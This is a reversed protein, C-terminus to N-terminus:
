DMGIVRLGTETLIVDVAQDHPMVPVDLLEDEHVIAVLLVRCGSRRLDEILRDYYGGGQGLRLGTRPDAALAPILMVASKDVLLESGVGVTPGDPSPLRDLRSVLHEPTASVWELRESGLPRPLLVQQGESIANGLLTRPDPEFRTPQYGLVLDPDEAMLRLTPWMHGLAEAVGFMQELSRLRRRNRILSRLEDKDDM